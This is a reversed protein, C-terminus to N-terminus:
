HLFRSGSKGQIAADQPLAGREILAKMRALDDDMERKPDAGLLTALGHGLMGAPPVYSMHVTVLTGGRYPEFEVSGTNPIDAGAESRWALRHPRDQQTLVSNWEFHAGAPGKVIWHSRGAGLDRVETVHSMFRPFNEYNAWMDYVEEPAADIRITKEFAVPQASGQRRLMSAVPQNSAGRALLALGALGLALGLPSRRLLGYLGLM